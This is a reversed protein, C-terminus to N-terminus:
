TTKKHQSCATRPVVPRAKAELGRVNVHSTPPYCSWLRESFRCRAAAAAANLEVNLENLENLESLENLENRLKAFLRSIAEVGAFEIVGAIEIKSKM